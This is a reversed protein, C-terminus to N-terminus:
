GSGAVFVYLHHYVVDGPPQFAERGTIGLDGEYQWGAAALAKIAM